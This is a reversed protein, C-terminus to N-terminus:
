VYFIKRCALAVPEVKNELCFSDVQRYLQLTHFSLLQFVHSTSQVLIPVLLPELFVDSVAGLAHYSDAECFLSASGGGM